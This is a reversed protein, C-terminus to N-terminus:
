KMNQGNYHQGVQKVVEHELAEEVTIGYSDCYKDVYERFSLNSEYLEKMDIGGLIKFLM